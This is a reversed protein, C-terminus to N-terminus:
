LGCIQFQSMKLPLASGDNQAMIPHIIWWLGVITLTTIRVKCSGCLSRPVVVFTWVCMHFSLSPVAIARAICAITTRSPSHRQWSFQRNPRSERWPWVYSYGSIMEDAVGVDTGKKVSLSLLIERGDCIWLSLVNWSPPGGVRNWRQASSGLDYAQVVCTHHTAEIFSVNSQSPLHHGLCKSDIRLSDRKCQPV